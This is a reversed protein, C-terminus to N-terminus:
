RGASFPLLLLVCVIKRACSKISHSVGGQRASPRACSDISPPGLLGISRLLADGTSAKTAGLRQRPVNLSGQFSRRGMIRPMMMMMMGKKSQKSSQKGTRAGM